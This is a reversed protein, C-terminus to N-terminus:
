VKEGGTGGLPRMSMELGAIQWQLRVGGGQEGVVEEHLAALDDGVQGLRGAQRLHDRGHPGVDVVNILVHAVGRRASEADDGGRQADGRQQGEELGHTQGFLRPLHARPTHAGAGTARTTRAAPCHHDHSRTWDATAPTHMTHVRQKLHGAHHASSPMGTSSGGVEWLATHLGVAARASGATGLRAQRASPERSTHPWCGRAAPRGPLAPGESPDHCPEDGDMAAAGVM